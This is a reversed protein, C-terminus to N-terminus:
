NEQEFKSAERRQLEGIYRYKDASKQIDAARTVKQLTQYEDYLRYVMISAIVILMITILTVRWDMTSKNM